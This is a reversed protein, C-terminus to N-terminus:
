SAEGCDGVSKRTRAAQLLPTDNPAPPASDLLQLTTATVRWARGTEVFELSLATYGLWANPTQTFSEGTPTAVRLTDITCPPLDGLELVGTARSALPAIVRVEHLPVPARNQVHIDLGAPLITSSVDGITAWMAVRSSYVQKDRRESDENLKVQQGNLVRQSAWTEDAIGLARVSVAFAALAAITAALASWM